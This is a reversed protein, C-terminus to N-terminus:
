EVIEWDEALVDTQSALWPVVNNQATKMAIYAGYPVLDNEFIGNMTGLKNGNAPYFNEPVYYIFMGKGNWGKRAVKEGKKMAEIALGFTLGDTKRYAKEFVEKPSWSKYGDEYEVLYGDENNAQIKRKLLEEATNLMMPIALIIKVGIYKNM